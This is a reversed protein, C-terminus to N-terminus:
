KRSYKSGPTDKITLPTRMLISRRRGGTLSSKRPNSQTMEPTPKNTGPYLNEDQINIFTSWYDNSISLLGEMVMQQLKTEAFMVAAEPESESYGVLTPGFVKALNSAPMKCDPCEAVRQLHTIIWAITDRNPQPIETLVQYLAAQSDEPDEVARVFDRWHSHTVLSEKLSRLFDKLTGCLTHVDTQSINPMGKGRLFQDKLAKVEKESGPIRYIGLESLGRKEVENTIHVVIAPVMPSVQTTFDAIVGLRGKRNPTLATPVCPRPVSEKCEQHCTARCDRCKLATKGFKVRKGCPQCTESKYVTKVYFAHQRTNLKSTSQRHHIPPTNNTNPTKYTQEPTYVSVHTKPTYINQSPSYDKMPPLPSIPYLSKKKRLKQDAEYKDADEQDDVSSKDVDSLVINDKSVGLKYIKSNSIDLIVEESKRKRFSTGSRLRSEDQDLADDTLDIDSVSLISAASNDYGEKITSLGADGQLGFRLDTSSMGSSISHLERLKEKTENVNGTGLLEMVNKIQQALDDKEKESAHKKAREADLLHRANRLKMDLTQIEKQSQVQTEQLRKVELQLGMAQSKWYSVSEVFELFKNEAPDNLVEMSRMLDDFASSLSM